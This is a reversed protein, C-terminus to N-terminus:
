APQRLRPARVAKLEAVLTPLESPALVRLHALYAPLPDANLKIVFIPKELAMVAGIEFPTWPSSISQTSALIVYADSERLADRVESQRESVARTTAESRVRFGAEKLTNAVLAALPQDQLANALFVTLMVPKTSTM